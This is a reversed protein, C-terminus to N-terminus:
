DERTPRRLGLRAAIALAVDDWHATGSYRQAGTRAHLAVGAAGAAILPGISPVIGIGVVVLDAPLVAPVGRAMLVAIAVIAVVMELANM